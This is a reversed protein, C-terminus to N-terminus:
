CGYRVRDVEPVEMVRHWVWHGEKSDLTISKTSKDNATVQSGNQPDIVVMEASAGNEAGPYVPKASPGGDTDVVRVRYCPPDSLQHLRIVPWSESQRRNFKMPLGRLRLRRPQPQWSPM